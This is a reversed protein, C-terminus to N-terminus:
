NRCEKGVRREESRGAVGQQLYAPRGKDAEFLYSDCLLYHELEMQGLNERLFLQWVTDMLRLGFDEFTYCGLFRPYGRYDVSRISCLAM